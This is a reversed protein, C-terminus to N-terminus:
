RTDFERQAEMKWRTRLDPSGFVDDTLWDKDVYVGTTVTCGSFLVLCLYLMRAM